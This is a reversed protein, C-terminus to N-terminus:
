APLTPSRMNWIMEGDKPEPEDLVAGVRFTITTGSGEGSEIEMVGGHLEAIRRAISLGLGLGEQGRNKWRDRIPIPDSLIRLQDRAIGAGNDAITVFWGPEAGAIEGLSIVVRDCGAHLVTNELVLRFAQRLRSPNGRIFVREGMLEVVPQDRGSFVDRTAAGLVLTLELGEQELYTAGELRTRDILVDVMKLLQSGGRVVYGAWEVYAKNEIPGAAQAEIMESFGIVANLPTKFEHCIAALFATKMRSVRKLEQIQQFSRLATIIAKHLVAMTVQTKELYDNIDYSAIVEREPAYGPQGTRIIIRADANNSSHRVFHVLDLGSTGESMLVDLLIVAIELDQDLASRADDLTLADILELERGNFSVGTLALRTVQLVAPDDDM